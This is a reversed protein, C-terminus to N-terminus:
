YKYGEQSNFSPPQRPGGFQEPRGQSGQSSGNGPSFPRQGNVGQSGSSSGDPRQNIGQIGTYTPRQGNVTQSSPFSGGPRQDQPGLSSSDSGQGNVGQTGALSPHTSAVQYGQPNFSPGQGNIAQNGPSSVGPKQGNFGQSGFSSGAPRKGNPSLNASSGPQQQAPFSQSPKNYQYPAQIPAAGSSGRASTSQQSEPGFQSISPRITSGFPQNDPVFLSGSGPTRNGSSGGFPVSEQNFASSGGFPRNGNQQYQQGKIGNNTGLSPKNTNSQYQSGQSPQFSSGSPKNLGFSPRNANAQYQYGSSVTSGASEQSGPRVPFGQSEFSPKSPNLQNVASGILQNGPRNASNQLQSIQSGQFTGFPKESPSVKGSQLGFTTGSTAITQGQNVQPRNQVSAGSGFQTVAGLNSQPQNYNYGSSGQGQGLGQTFSGQNSSQGFPRQSNGLGTQYQNSQGQAGTTFQSSGAFPKVNDIQGSQGSFQDVPGQNSGSAQQYQKIPGQLGSPGASFQNPGQSLKTQGFQDSQGTVPNPGFAGTNGSYQNNQTQSTPGQQFSGQYSGQPRNFSTQGANYQLASDDSEYEEPRYAGEQTGAAAARSNEEISKLIEEPIPHPTPLHEGQPQFGNEDATYTLSYSQGDDGTYSFGGQAKVGNTAVGSEEVSIGNSTEYSYLYSEGNNENVYKLIEANRDAAAQSREPKYAQAENIAQTEQGFGQSSPRASQPRYAQQSGVNFTNAGPAKNSGFNTSQSTGFPANAGLLPVNGNNGTSAFANLGTGSLSQKNGAGFGPGNQAKGSVGGFTSPFSQGSGAGPQRGSPVQGAQGLNSGPNGSAPALLAGPSGGATAANVPPLYARDLKDAYGYAIISLVIVLKM